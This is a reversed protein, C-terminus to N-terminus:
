YTRQKYRRLAAFQVNYFHVVKRLAARTSTTYCPKRQFQKVPTKVNSKNRENRLRTYNVTGYFVITKWACRTTSRALAARSNKIPLRIFISSDGEFKLFILIKQFDFITNVTTKIIHTDWLIRFTDWISPFIALGVIKQPFGHNEM